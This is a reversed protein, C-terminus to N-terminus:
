FEVVSQKKFAKDSFESAKRSWFEIFRKGKNVAVVRVLETGNKELSRISITQFTKRGEFRNRQGRTM